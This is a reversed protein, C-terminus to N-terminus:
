YQSGLGPVHEKWLDTILARALHFSGRESPSWLTSELSSDLVDDHHSNSNSDSDYSQPSSYNAAEQLRMLMNMQLALFNMIIQTRLYHCCSSWMVAVSANAKGIPLPSTLDIISLSLLSTNGTFLMWTVSLVCTKCYLLFHSLQLSKDVAMSWNRNRIGLFLAFSFKQQQLFLLKGSSRRWCWESSSTQQHLRGPGCLLWRLGRGWAAAPASSAVWPAPPHSGLPLHGDGVKCSGGLASEEWVVSLACFWTLCKLWRVWHRGLWFSRAM